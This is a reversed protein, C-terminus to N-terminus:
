VEVCLAVSVRPRGSSNVPVEHFEGPPIYIMDGPEPLHEGDKDIIPIGAPDHYYLVVHQVHDHWDIGEGPMFIVELFQLYDDGPKPVMARMQKRLEGFTGHPLITNKKAGGYRYLDIKPSPSPGTM